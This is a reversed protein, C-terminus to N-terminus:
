ESETAQTKMGRPPYSTAIPHVHPSEVSPQWYLYKSNCGESWYINCVETANYRVDEDQALKGIDQRERPGLDGFQSAEFEGGAFQFLVNGDVLMLGLATYFMGSRDYTDVGTKDIADILKDFDDRFVQTSICLLTEGLGMISLPRRPITAAILERAADYNGEPIRLGRRPKDFHYYGVPFKCYLTERLDDDTALRGFVEWFDLM